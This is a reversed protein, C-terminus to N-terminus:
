ELFPFSKSWPWQFVLCPFSVHLILPISFSGAPSCHILVESLGNSNEGKELEEKRLGLHATKYSDTHGTQSPTGATYVGLLHSLVLGGEDKERGVSQWQESTLQSPGPDLQPVCPM